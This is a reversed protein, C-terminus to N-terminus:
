EMYNAFWESIESSMQYHSLTAPIKIWGYSPYYEIDFRLGDKTEVILGKKDAAVRAYAKSGVDGDSGELKKLENAFVMDHYDDFCFAPLVSLENFFEAIVAKDTIVKGDSKLLTIGVIDAPEAIGYVEFAEKISLSENAKVHYNRFLAYHYIDGNRFISVARYPAPAYEFLEIDTESNSAIYNSRKIEPTEKQLYVIHKGVIDGTIEKKLGYKEITEPNEIIELYANEYDILMVSDVLENQDPPVIRNKFVTFGVGLLLAFCAAAAAWKDWPKAPSKTKRANYNTAEDIFGPDINAIAESIKKRKM